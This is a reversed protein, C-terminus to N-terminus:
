IRRDKKMRGLFNSNRGQEQLNSTMSCTLGFPEGRYNSKM